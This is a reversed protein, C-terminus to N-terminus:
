QLTSVIQEVHQQSLIHEYCDEMPLVMLSTANRHAGLQTSLIFKTNETPTTLTEQFLTLQTISDISRTTKTAASIIFIEEIASHIDLDSKHTLPAEHSILKLITPIQSLSINKIWLNDPWLFIDHGTPRNKIKNQHNNKRMLEAASLHFNYESFDNFNYSNNTSMENSYKSIIHTSSTHKIMESQHKNELLWPQLNFTHDFILVDRYQFSSTVKSTVSYRRGLYSRSIFKLRLCM